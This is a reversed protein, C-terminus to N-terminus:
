PPDTVVVGISEGAIAPPIERCDGHYITVGDKEYCPKM